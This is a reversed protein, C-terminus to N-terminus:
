KSAILRAILVSKYAGIREYESDGFFIGQKDRYNKM